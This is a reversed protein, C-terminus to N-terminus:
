DARLAQVPDIRTAFRAPVYAAVLAVVLLLAASGVMVIPDAPSVEYLLTTLLRSAALAVALGVVVGAGTVAFAQALVGRRLREPSAGLASRVGLERMGARVSSAMVGYLGIAALLMSVLAFAGLLLASVRPQMLPGALLDNMSQADWLTYDPNIERAARRLAPLVTALEASTRVAFNGQWLSQRWPLYVSPTAERLSRYRIDGAVGVVTRWTTSDPGWFYIHKGIPDDDPWLRRATAESVIAVMPANERDADTFARGRGIPIGFTRFYDAGGAEMPVFTNSKMEERTQGEVDLRSIFVSAGFFPPIVVPTVTTIGPVARLAPLLRDGLANVMAQSFQGASDLYASPPFSYSLLSLRDPNYGLAIGQLRELSRGLLGAGALMVLALAVQWAVLAERMRRRARTETGARSDFRLPSALSGRSAIFAPVVGFLLVAILTVSVAIAIPTGTLGIVDTRPLKAPAYALLVGILAGASLVGLAGGALGLLGSEVVLQQVIDGSGAGLARRVSLERARGAARLLLLNGVNVCAVLLLLGVAAALVVLIPRISGVVVHRFSEVHVGAYTRDPFLHKMTSFFETQAALPTANPALRAIAIVSMAASPQWAPMWLGVGSPYDLGAPAVGVIRYNLRQYPEMLRRGIVGSDGGFAKQWTGYSIVLVPEAGAVEDATQLLRGLVPRAGLVEFFNGTVTTRSIVLPRDGDLFPAGSAGWHAVGAIDHMTRSTAAVKPLDGRLLWFDANPDGRYTFLQVLGSEDQVPLPRLLVADFVTFMAVAMGIGLALILVATITFSPSHRFGRLALRADHAIRNM